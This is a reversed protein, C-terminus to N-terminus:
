SVQHFNAEYQLRQPKNRQRTSRRPEAELAEVKPFVQRNAQLHGIFGPASQGQEPLERRKNQLSDNEANSNDDDEDIRPDDEKPGLQCGLCFNSLVVFDLACGMFLEIVTGVCIHSSHGRTLWTGDFSVAINRPNEYNLDAYLTRVTSACDDIVLVAAKQSAPNMKLKVYDQYTKTHMGRRSINLTPFIDNLATKDTGQACAVVPHCAAEHVLHVLEDLSPVRHGQQHTNRFLKQHDEGSPPCSSVGMVLSRMHAGGDYGIDMPDRMHRFFLCM